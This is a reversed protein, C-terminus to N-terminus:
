FAIKTGDCDMQLVLFVFVEVALVPRALRNHSYALRDAKVIAPRDRGRVAAADRTEKRWRGAGALDILGVGCRGDPDDQFAGSGDRGPAAGEGKDM